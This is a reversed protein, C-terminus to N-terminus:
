PQRSLWRVFDQTRDRGVKSKESPLFGETETWIRLLRGSLNFALPRPPPLSPFNLPAEPIEVSESWAYSEAFRSKQLLPPLEERKTQALRETVRTQASRKALDLFREQVQRSATYASQAFAHFKALEGTLWDVYAVDGRQLEARVQSVREAMRKRSLPSEPALLLPGGRDPFGVFLSLEAVQRARAPAGTLLRAYAEEMLEDAMRRVQALAEEAVVEASRRARLEEERFYFNWLTEQVEQIQQHMMKLASERRETSQSTEAPKSPVELKKQLAPMRFRPAPSPVQSAQTVRSYGFASSVAKEAHPPSVWGPPTGGCGSLFLLASLTTPIWKSSLRMPSIMPLM